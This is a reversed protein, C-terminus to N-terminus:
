QKVGGMWQTVGGVWQTVGGVWQTVRDVGSGVGVQRDPGEGLRENRGWMVHRRDAGGGSTPAAARLPKAAKATGTLRQLSIGLLICVDVTFVGM